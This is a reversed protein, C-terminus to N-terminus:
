SGSSYFYYKQFFYLTDIIYRVLTRVLPIYSFGSYVGEFARRTVSSFLPERLLLLMWSLRRRTQEASVSVPVKTDVGRLGMRRCKAECRRQALQSLRDSILLAGLSVLIPIWSKRGAIRRLFAYMLPRVIHLIEGGVHEAGSPMNPGCVTHPTRVNPPMPLVTGNPGRWWQRTRAESRGADAPTASHVCGGNELTRWSSKRLVRLRLAARITEVGIIMNWQGTEGNTRMGIMEAIVALSGILTLIWRTKEAPIKGRDLAQNAM